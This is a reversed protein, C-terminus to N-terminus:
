SQTLFHRIGDAANVLMVFSLTIPNVPDDPVALRQFFEDKVFREIFVVKPLM